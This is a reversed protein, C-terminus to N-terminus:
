REEKQETEYLLVIQDRNLRWERNLWEYIRQKAALQEATPKGEDPKAEAAGVRINISVPEIAAIPKRSAADTSPPAAPSADIPDLIVRMQKMAPTGNNDYSLQLSVQKIRVNAEDGVSQQLEAALQREMLKQAENRDDQRWREADQMIATLPRMAGFANGNNSANDLQEVSALMKQGDWKQQFLSLLPSLMSLLIFLGLVTRVYRQYANNPLLLEVFAAFLVVVIIDKLWGSLWDMM